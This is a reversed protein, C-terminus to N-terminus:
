GSGASRGAAPADAPEGLRRAPAEGWLAELRYFDRMAPTFIHVVVDLYDMLIWRAGPMGEVRRARVRHEQSLGEAIADHIAKTQRETNGSCILLYDTYSVLARLDLELLELAKKEGAYRAIEAALEEASLAPERALERVSM